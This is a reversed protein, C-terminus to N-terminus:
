IQYVQETERTLMSHDYWEKSQTAKKRYFKSILHLVQHANVHKQSDRTKEIDGGSLPRSM